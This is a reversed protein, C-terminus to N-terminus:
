NKKGKQEKEGTCVRSGRQRSFVTFVYIEPTKIGEWLDCVQGISVCLTIFVHITKLSFNSSFFYNRVVLM